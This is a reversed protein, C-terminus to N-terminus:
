EIITASPIPPIAAPSTALRSAIVVAQLQDVLRGLPPELDVLLFCALEEFPDVAVEPLDVLREGLLAFGIAPEEAHAGRQRGGVAHADVQEDDVEAVRPRIEIAVALQASQGLVMGDGLRHGVGAVDGGSSTRWWPLRFASVLKRPPWWPLTLASTRQSRRASPSRSSSQLSPRVSITSSDISRGSGGRARGARLLRRLGQEVLRELRPPLSLTVTM